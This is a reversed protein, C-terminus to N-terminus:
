NERALELLREGFLRAAEEKQAPTLEEPGFRAGRDHLRQLAALAPGAHGSRALHELFARRHQTGDLGAHTFVATLRGARVSEFAASEALELAPSDRQAEERTMAELEAASTIALLWIQAAVDPIQSNRGGSAWETLLRLAERPRSRAARHAARLQLGEEACGWPPLEAHEVERLTLVLTRAMEPAATRYYCFELKRQRLLGTEKEFVCRDELRLLASDGAANVLGDEDAARWERLVTAVGDEGWGGQVKEQALVPDGYRAGFVPHHLEIRRERALGTRLESLEVGLPDSYPFGDFLEWAFAELPADDVSVGDPTTRFFRVETRTSTGNTRTVLRVGLFAGEEQAFVRDRITGHEQFGNGGGRTRSLSLYESEFELLLDLGLQTRSRWDVDRQARTAAAQPALAVILALAFSM